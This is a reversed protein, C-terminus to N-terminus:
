DNVTVGYASKVAKVRALDLQGFAFRRHPSIRGNFSTKPTKLEPRVMRSSDGLLGQARGLIRGLTGAGPIAALQTEEPHPLTSPARTCGPLRSPWSDSTAPRLCRWSAFTSTSISTRTM